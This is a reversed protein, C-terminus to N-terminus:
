RIVSVVEGLEASPASITVRGTVADQLVFYGTDYDTVSTFHVGAESPDFPLTTLYAPIVCPAIDYDGDAMYTAVGPLPGSVCTFVGKNDAINGSIADLIAQVHATRGDNRSVAFRRPPDVLVAAGVALIAIVGVTIILELMTYGAGSKRGFFHHTTYGQQRTLLLFRM